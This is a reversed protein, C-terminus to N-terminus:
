TGCAPVRVWFAGSTDFPMCRGALPPCIIMFAGAGQADSSIPGAYGSYGGWGLVVPERVVRAGARRALDMVADVEDRDAVVHGLTMSPEGGVREGADAAM